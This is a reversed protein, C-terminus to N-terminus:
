MQEERIVDLNRFSPPVRCLGALSQAFQATEPHDSNAQAAEYSPFEVL